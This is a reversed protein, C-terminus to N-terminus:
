RVGRSGDFVGLVSATIGLDGSYWSRGVRSGADRWGHLITDLERVLTSIDSLHSPPFIFDEPSPTLSIAAMTSDLNRLLGDIVPGVTTPGFCRM